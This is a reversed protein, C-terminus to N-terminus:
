EGSKTILQYDPAAETKYSGYKNVVARKEKTTLLGCSQLWNFELRDCHMLWGDITEGFYCPRSHISRDGVTTPPPHAIKRRLAPLPVLGLAYMAFPRLGPRCTEWRRLIRDGHIDWAVEYQELTECGIGPILSGGWTVLSLEDLTTLTEATRRSCRRVNRAPL